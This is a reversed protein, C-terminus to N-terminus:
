ISSGISVTSRRSPLPEFGYMEDDTDVRYLIPRLTVPDSIELYGCTTLARICDKAKNLRKRIFLDLTM